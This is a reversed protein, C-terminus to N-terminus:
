SKKLAQYEALTFVQYNFYKKGEARGLPLIVLVQGTLGGLKAMKEKVGKNLVTHGLSVLYQTGDQAEVDMVEWGGEKTAIVRPDGLCKCIFAEKEKFEYVDSRTQRQKSIKEAEEDSIKVKRWEEKVSRLAFSDKTFNRM